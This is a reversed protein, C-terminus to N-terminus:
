ILNNIHVYDLGQSEAVAANTLHSKYTNLGKQLPISQTLAATLGLKAILNIYPLTANTLAITSTKAVAGPMNPVAYHLVGHKIYIPDDHSTTHDITEFIGGQDIAVDIIVSGAEMTKVMDATVLTPPKAGPILVTGIVVDADKVAEAINFSNSVLTQVSNGFLDDLQALRKQSVDLITVNAGIGVAIKAANTGVNGGGIIVVNGRKVGPIGALLIGKGGKVKELFEAGIQVSMRGAIESMPTLLPLSHDELQITEYAIGTTGSDLLTKTLEYAPALHLYTFLILDKRLFHYEAPLPEKVKVVLDAAWVESPETKISAGVAEYDADSFGSGFGALTELYIQHGGAILSAAGNPTLGVRNENNKVEKPIGIIMHKGVKM